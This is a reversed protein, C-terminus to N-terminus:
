PQSADRPTLEVWIPLHDSAKAEDSKGAEVITMGRTFIHDLVFEFPGYKATYGVSKTAREMGIEAFSEALDEVSKPTLTNFDGGIVIFPYSMDISEILADIQGHRKEPGLWLTETHVSYALIETDEITVVSKVAIRIQQNRPSKYPLIVKETADIPWKSLIANGFNKDHRDLVSAPYYVFNYGLAHAIAETGAEDMEQLLVIDADKLGDFESLEFIARDVQQAFSINYSIVKITGDFEAPQDSFNGDFRPELASLYNSTSSCSALLICAALLIALIPSRNIM